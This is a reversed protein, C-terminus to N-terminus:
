NAKPASPMAGASRYADANAAQTLAATEARPDRLPAVCNVGPAGALIEAVCRTLSRRAGAEVFIQAGGEHLTRVADSFRVPRWMCEAFARLLDDGDDYWLNRVPSFVPHRLPRQRLGATLDLFCESAKRASQHHAAYPLDIRSWSLGADHAAKAGLDIAAVPGSVVCLTPTNVCAIQLQRETPGALLDRTEAEGAGIVAMAGEAKITEFAAFRAHVLVVGDAPTFAGAATLAAMEGFSHGLLGYPELGQDLLARATALSVSFVVLEALEGGLARLEGFTPPNGNFLVDTVSPIAFDAARHDIEALTDNVVDFQFRAQRLVGTSYADIGPFLLVTSDAM